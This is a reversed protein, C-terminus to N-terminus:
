ERDKQMIGTVAAAGIAAVVWGAAVLLWRGWWLGWGWWGRDKSPAWAAVQGLDLIPVVLDAAYGAPHFSDWDMGPQGKGSWVEAPNRVCSVPVAGGVCDQALLGQWEASVLVVDSNPAFSGEEWVALALGFAVAWLGILCGLARQPRYGYGAVVRLLWDGVTLGLWRVERGLRGFLTDDRSVPAALLDRRAQRFVEQERWFLVTRAEGNLGMGRFVRALQTYPQPHFRGQWVSGARLWGRRGAATAPARNGSIRDYTFGDLHLADTGAPWRGDDALDGAHAAPLAVAGAKVTVDQWFLGQVVHLRQAHLALDGAGDFQAGSCSM